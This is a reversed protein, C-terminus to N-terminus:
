RSCDPFARAGRLLRCSSGSGHPEEALSQSWPGGTWAEPRDGVVARGLLRVSAFESAKLLM